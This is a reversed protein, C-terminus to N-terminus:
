PMVYLWVAVIAVLAIFELVVDWRVDRFLERIISM